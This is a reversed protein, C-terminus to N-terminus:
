VCLILRDPHSVNEHENKSLETSKELKVVVEHFPRLTEVDLFDHKRRVKAIQDDNLFFSGFREMFHTKLAAQRFSAPLEHASVSMFNRQLM